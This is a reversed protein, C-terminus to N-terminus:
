KSLPQDMAIYRDAAWLNKAEPHMIQQEVAMRSQMLIAKVLWPRQLMLPEFRHRPLRLLRSHTGALVRYPSVYGRLLGGVHFIDGPRMSGLLVDEGRADIETLLMIGSQVMYANPEEVKREILVQGSRISSHEFMDAVKERDIDNFLKFIEHKALVRLVLRRRFLQDLLPRLREDRALIGQIRDYPLELVTVDTACHLSAARHMGTFYALEGMLCPRSPAGILTRVGHGPLLVDVEGRVLLWMHNAVDGQRCLMEGSALRREYAHAFLKRILFADDSEDSADVVRSLVDQESEAMLERLRVMSEEVLATEENADESSMHAMLKKYTEMAKTYDGTRECTYAFHLQVERDRKWVPSQWLQQYYRRAAEFDGEEAAQRAQRFIETYNTM